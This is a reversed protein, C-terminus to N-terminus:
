VQTNTIRHIAKPNTVVTVGIEWGRITFKIGQDEIVATKLPSATKWTSATQGKIILAEDAPVSNSVIITLGAIQGVRGNSVVDATKFSPNNIVKSNLMLQAYDHPSLLLFGNELVDYNDESVDRIGRLIDTIPKQNAETADDWNAVAAATNIDSDAIWASYIADDVSKAIARGIRLLTRAMVDIENTRADEWSIVGEGAHKVHRANVEEWTPELYPFSALRPIGEIGQTGTATLETAGEKFFTEKWSSSSQVLCVQKFKYQQMAFGIVAKNINEARLDSSGTSLTDGVAM